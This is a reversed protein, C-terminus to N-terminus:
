QTVGGEDRPRMAAHTHGFRGAVRQSQDLRQVCFGVNRLSEKAIFGLPDREASGHDAVRPVKAGVHLSLQVGSGLTFRGFAVAGGLRDHAFGRGAARELNMRFSNM